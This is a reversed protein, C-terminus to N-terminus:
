LCHGRSNKLRRLLTSCSITAPVSRIMVMPDEPSKENAKKSKKAEKWQDEIERARADEDKMQREWLEVKRKCASKGSAQPGVIISMLGLRQIAGDCYRVTVGDAYAAAIPLVACLVPMKMSEPVGDISEKLGRPLKKLIRKVLANEKEAKDQKDDPDLDENKSTQSKLIAIKSKDSKLSDTYIKRLKGSMPRNNDTYKAYFDRILDQCDKEKSYEPMREAVVATLQEKSMLRCIGMSLITILSNHRTGINNLNDLTLGASEIAEDFIRLNAQLPMGGVKSNLVSEDKGTQESVVAPASVLLHTPNTNGNNETNTNSHQQSHNAFLAEKDIYLIYDQPVAFSCRALDKVSEDYKDIGLMSALRRQGDQPTEGDNLVFVLRLGETSPTVHALVIGLKRLTALTKGDTIAEHKLAHDILLSGLPMGSGEGKPSPDPTLSIHDIDFISLGSPEASSNHRRNDRFHAQFLFAPLEIKKQRKFTEFDERSMEGRKVKELADRIEACIFSVTLSRTVTEFIDQTCEVTHPRRANSSYDFM